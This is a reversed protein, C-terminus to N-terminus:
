RANMAITAHYLYAILGRCKSHFCMDRQLCKQCLTSPTAKTPGSRAGPVNRYRNMAPPPPNPFSGAPKRYFQSLNWSFSLIELRQGLGRLLLLQSTTQYVLPLFDGAAVAAAAVAATTPRSRARCTCPLRLRFGVSFFSM